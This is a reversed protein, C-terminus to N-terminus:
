LRPLLAVLQTKFGEADEIYPNVEIESGNNLRIMYQKKNKRGSFKETVGGIDTYDIVRLFRGKSIRLCDECLEYRIFDKFFWGSVYLILSFFLGAAIIIYLRSRRIPLPLDRLIILSYIFAYILCIILFALASFLVMREYRRGAKFVTNNM